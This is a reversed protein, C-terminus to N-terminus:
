FSAAGLETSNVHDTKVAGVLLDRLLKTISFRRTLSRM